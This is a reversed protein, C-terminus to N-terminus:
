LDEDMASQGLAGWKQRGFDELGIGKLIEIEQENFLHESTLPDIGELVKQEQDTMQPWIPAYQTRRLERLKRKEPDYEDEETRLVGAKKLEQEIKPPYKGAKKPLQYKPGTHLQELRKQLDMNDANSVGRYANDNGLGLDEMDKEYAEVGKSDNEKGDDLVYGHEAM